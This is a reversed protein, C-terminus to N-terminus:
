SKRIYKQASNLLSGSCMGTDPGGKHLAKSVLQRHQLRHATHAVLIAVVTAVPLVAVMAVPIVAVMAVPIAVVMAVPIVAVMAVPIAVVMAVPIVVM